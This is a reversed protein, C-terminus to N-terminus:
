EGREDGLNKTERWSERELFTREGGNERELIKREGGHDGGM